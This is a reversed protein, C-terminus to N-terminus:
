RISSRSDSGIRQRCGSCYMPRIIYNVRDRRYSCRVEDEQRCTRRWFLSASMRCFHELSQISLSGLVSDISGECDISLATFTMNLPHQLESFSSVSKESLITEQLSWVLGLQMHHHLLCSLRHNTRYPRTLYILQFIIYPIYM